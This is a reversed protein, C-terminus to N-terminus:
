FFRFTGYRVPAKNFIAISNHGEIADGTMQTNKNQEVAANTLMTHTLSLWSKTPKRVCKFDVYKKIREYM